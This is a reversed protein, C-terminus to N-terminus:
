GSPKPKMTILTSYLARDQILEINECALKLLGFRSEPWFWETKGSKTEYFRSVTRMAREASHAEDTIDFLIYAGKKQNGMIAYLYGHPYIGYREDIFFSKRNAIEEWAKRYFIQGTPHSCRLGFENITEMGEQYLRYDREADLGEGAVAFGVNQAELEHLANVLQDFKNIDVWDRDLVHFIWDGKGYELADYWSKGCDVKTEERYIYLRKDEIQNLIDITGDDSYNDVVVVELEESRCSLLHTILETVMEKRNYTPICFSM